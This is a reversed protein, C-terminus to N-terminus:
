KATKETLKLTRNRLKQKHKCFGPEGRLEIFFRLVESEIKKWNLNLISGSKLKFNFLRKM